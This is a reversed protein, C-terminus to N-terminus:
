VRLRSITIDSVTGSFIAYLGWFKHIYGLKSTFESFYVGALSTAQVSNSIFQLSLLIGMADSVIVGLEGLSGSGILVIFDLDSTDPLALFTSYLNFHPHDSINIHMSNFIFLFFSLFFSLVARVASPEM